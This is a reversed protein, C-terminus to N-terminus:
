ALCLQREDISDPARDCQSFYLVVGVRRRWALPAIVFPRFTPITGQGRFVAFALVEATAM